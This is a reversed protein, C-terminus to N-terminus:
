NRANMISITFVCLLLLFAENDAVYMLEKLKRGELHNDDDDDDYGHIPHFKKINNGVKKEKQVVALILYRSLSTKKEPENIAPLLIM